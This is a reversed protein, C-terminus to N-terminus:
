RSCSPMSYGVTRGFYNESSVGEGILSGIRHEESRAGMGTGQFLQKEVASSVIGAGDRSTSAHRPRSVGRGGRRADASGGRSRRARRTGHADERALLRDAPPGSPAPASSCGRAGIRLPPPPPAAAEFRGAAAAAIGAVTLPTLGGFLSLAM